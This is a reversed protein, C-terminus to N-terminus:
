SPLKIDERSYITIVIHEADRDSDPQESVVTVNEPVINENGVPSTNTTITAQPIDVFISERYASITGPGTQIPEGVLAWQVALRSDRELKREFERTIYDRSFGIEATMDGQSILDAPFMARRNHPRKAIIPNSLKFSTSLCELLTESEPALGRKLTVHSHTFRPARFYTPTYGTWSGDDSPGTPHTASYVGPIPAQSRFVWTDSANHNAVAGPLNVCLPMRTSGADIGLTQPTAQEDFLETLDGIINAGAYVTHKGSVPDVAVICDSASTSGYSAGSTRKARLKAIGAAVASQIKLYLSSSTASADQRIGFLTPARGTGTHTGAVGNGHTTHGCAMGKASLTVEKGDATQLSIESIRNQWFYEAIIRDAETPNDQSFAKLVSFSGPRRNKNRFSANFVYKRTPEDYASGPTFDVWASTQLAQKTCRGVLGWLYVILEGTSAVDTISLPYNVETLLKRRPGTTGTLEKTDVYTYIPRQDFSKFDCFKFEGNGTTENASPPAQTIDLVPPDADAIATDTYSTAAPDTLRIVLHWPGWSLAGAAKFRRYLWKEIARAPVTGTMDSVAIQATSASITLASSPGLATRFLGETVWCYAYEYDGLAFSGPDGGATLTLTEVPDAVAITEIDPHGVSYKDSPEELRLGVRLTNGTVPLAM